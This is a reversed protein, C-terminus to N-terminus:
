PKEYGTARLQLDFKSPDNKFFLGGERESNGPVYTINATASEVEQSGRNLKGEIEVAAATQTGTNRVRFKALYGGASPNVSTVTVEFSQPRDNHTVGRHIMAAIVGVVLLVGIGALIWEWAPPRPLNDPNSKKEAM